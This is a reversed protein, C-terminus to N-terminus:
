INDLYQRHGARRLRLVNPIYLIIDHAEKIIYM